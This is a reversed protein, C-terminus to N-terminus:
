AAGNVLARAAAELYPSLPALTPPEPQRSRWYGEAFHEPCLPVAYGARIQGARIQGPSCLCCCYIM